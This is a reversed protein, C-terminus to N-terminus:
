GGFVKDITEIKYEWSIGGYSEDVTKTHGMLEKCLGGDIQRNLRMWTWLQEKFYHRSKHTSWQINDKEYMYNIHLPRMPKVISDKRQRKLIYKTDPDIYAMLLSYLGVNIPIERSRMIFKNGKRIHKAIDVYLGRKHHRDINKIEANCIEIRSMGMECGFRLAILTTTHQQETLQKITEQYQEKSPILIRKAERHYNVGDKRKIEIMNM